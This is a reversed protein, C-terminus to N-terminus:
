DLLVGVKNHSYGLSSNSSSALSKAEIRGQSSSNSFIPDRSNNAMIINMHVISSSLRLKDWLQRMGVVLVLMAEVVMRLCQLLMPFHIWPVMRGLVIRRSHTTETSMPHQVVLPNLTLSMVVRGWVVTKDMRRLHHLQNQFPMVLM